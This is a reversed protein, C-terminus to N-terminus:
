RRCVLIYKNSFRVNVNSYLARFYKRCALLINEYTENPLHTMCKDYRFRFLIVLYWSYEHKVHVESNPSFIRVGCRGPLFTNYVMGIFMLPYIWSSTFVNSVITLHSLMSVLDNVVLLPNGEERQQHTNHKTLTIFIKM